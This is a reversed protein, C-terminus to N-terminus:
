AQKALERELRSVIKAFVGRMPCESDALAQHCEMVHQTLDRSSLDQTRLTVWPGCPAPAADMMPILRDIHTPGLLKRRQDASAALFYRQPQTRGFRRFVDMLCGLFTSDLYDCAALDFVVIASADAGLTNLAVERAAPSQGMTGDGEVRIVCGTETPAVKLTTPRAVM